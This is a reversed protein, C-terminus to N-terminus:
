LCAITLFVLKSNVMVSLYFSIKQVIVFEMVAGAKASKGIFHM